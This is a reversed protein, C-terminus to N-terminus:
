AIEGRPVSFRGHRYREDRQEWGAERRRETAADSRRRQTYEAGCRRDSRQPSNRHAGCREQSFDQERNHERREDDRSCRRLADARDPSRNGIRRAGHEGARADREGIGARDAPILLRRGVAAARKLEEPEHGARVRHLRLEGAEAWRDEVADHDVGVDGHADIESQVDARQFFSHDDLAFRRKEIRRARQLLHNQWALDQVRHRIADVHPRDRAHHRAHDQALDVDASRFREQLGRRGHVAATELVPVEHVAHVHRREVAVAGDGRHIEVRVHKLLRVNLGTSTSGRLPLFAPEDEVHDGLRARILEVAAIREVAGVVAHARRIIRGRQLRLEEGRHRRGREGGIRVDQRAGVDQFDVVGARPETSRDDAVLDPERERRVILNQILVDEAAVVGGALLHQVVVDHPIEAGLHRPLHRPARLERVEVIKLVLFDTVSVAAAREGVAGRSIEVVLVGVHMLDLQRHRHSRLRDDVHRPAPEARVVHEPLFRLDLVAVDRAEVADRLGVRDRQRRVAVVRHEAVDRHRADAVVGATM